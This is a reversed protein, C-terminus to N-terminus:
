SAGGESRTWVAWGRAFRGSLYPNVKGGTEEAAARAERRTSYNGVFRAGDHIEGPDAFGFRFRNYGRQLQELTHADMERLHKPLNANM